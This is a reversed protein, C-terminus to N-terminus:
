AVVDLHFPPLGCQVACASDPRSDIVMLRLPAAEDVPEVNVALAAEVPSLPTGGRIRVDNGGGAEPDMGGATPRRVSGPMAVSHLGRALREHIRGPGGSQSRPAGSPEVM